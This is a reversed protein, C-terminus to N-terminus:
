KVILLPCLANHLIEQTIDGLLWGLFTKKAHSAGIVILDFDGKNAELLIGQSVVDHTLEMDSEVDYDELIKASKRLHKALPTDTDLVKEISEDLEELGSYMQPITNAVHFLTVHANASSALRAGTEIVREAIQLGGTCILIREFKNRPRTIVLTPIPSHDIVRQSLSGFARHLFSIGRRREVAVIQYDARQIEELLVNIPEGQMVSSQIDIGPYYSRAKEITKEGVVIGSENVAVYLLNITCRTLRGINSTYSLAADSFPRGATFHLLQM